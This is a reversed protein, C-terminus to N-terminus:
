LIFRSLDANSALDQVRERVYAADIPVTEGSRDTATFSIEDIVRELVTQLRRAGINEVSSNVEVAVRALADVADDTFSLTVGETEM